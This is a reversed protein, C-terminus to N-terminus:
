KDPDSIRGHRFSQAASGALKEFASRDIVKIHRRNRVLLVGRTALTGFARSISALSAGVYDAIDSRDMPVYIENTAEGKAAQLEELMLLFMTLKSLTRHSALLFAHRQAQRLEQCLKAIVHFELEADTLLWSQLATVPLQYATVPTLASVSSVYRGEQALGFLDEPFCFASIHETGGPGRTYAKVVGNIINFVADARDGEHYIQARKKFQVVSAIVALRAREEESLLQYAKERTPSKPAWPDIARISPGPSSTPTLFSM